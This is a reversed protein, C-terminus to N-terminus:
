IDKLIGKMININKMYMITCQVNMMKSAIDCSLMVLASYIM